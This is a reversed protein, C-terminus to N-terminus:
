SQNSNSSQNLKAYPTELTTGKGLLFLFFSYKFSETRYSFGKENNKNAARTQDNPACYACKYDSNRDGYWRNKPLRQWSVSFNQNFRQKLVFSCLTCVASSLLLTIECANQNVNTNYIKLSANYKLEIIILLCIM